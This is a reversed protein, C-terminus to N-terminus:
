YKTITIKEGKAVRELLASWHAKAEFAGISVLGGEQLLNM